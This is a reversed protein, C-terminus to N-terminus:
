QGNEVEFRAQDFQWHECNLNRGAGHGLANASKAPFHKCFMLLPFKEDALKANSIKAREANKCGICHGRMARELAESRSKWRDRDSEASLARTKWYEYMKLWEEDSKNYEDGICVVGAEPRNVAACLMSCTNRKCTGCPTSPNTM